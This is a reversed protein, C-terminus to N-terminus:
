SVRFICVIVLLGVWVPLMQVLEVEADMWSKQLEELGKERTVGSKKGLMRLCVVLEAPLIRSLGMTDLPDLIARWPKVPAIYSKIRPTGKADKKEKKTKGKTQPM